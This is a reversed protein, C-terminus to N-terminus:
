AAIEKLFEKRRMFLRRKSMSKPNKSLAIAEGLLNQDFLPNILEPQRYSYVNVEEAAQASTQFAAFAALVILGRRSFKM